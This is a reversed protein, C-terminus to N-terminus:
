AKHGHAGFLIVPAPVQAHQHGPRAPHNQAHELHQRARQQSVEYKVAIHWQARRHVRGMHVPDAKFVYEAVVLHRQRHRRQKDTHRLDLDIHGIGIGTRQGPGVKKSAERM